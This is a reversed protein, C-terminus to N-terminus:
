SRAGGLFLFMTKKKGSSHQGSETPRATAHISMEM